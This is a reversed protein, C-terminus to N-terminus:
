WCRSHFPCERPSECHIGIALEPLPGDLVALQREVEAPIGDIADRVEATVDTRVLLAGQDPHKFDKNLHMIEVGTVEVGNQRLVWAQVAADPIHEPKVSSASKVEILRWGNGDPLLVDTRIRVDKTEF